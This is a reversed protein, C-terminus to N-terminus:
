TNHSGDGEGDFVDTKQEFALQQQVELIRAYAEETGEKLWLHEAAELSRLLGAQREHLALAHRWGADVEANPADAEAFRDCKHTIAREILDLLRGSGTKDLQTRLRASDLSNDRAHVALIADRLRALPESVLMLDAIAEAHEDILWPHNVLTRLLLAERHPPAATQGAVLGSGLLSSTRQPRPAAGLGPGAGRPGVGSRGQTRPQLRQQLSQRWADDARRSATASGAKGGSWESRGSRRDPYSPTSAGWAEALRRRVDQEYHGRVGPDAITQVLGRLRQELAARREPTSWDGAAWEREFLVGSLPRTRALVAEMAEPGQQRVLDDPDVGDPLFAFSVSSGPKLQPLVVDVARYAAKRGASDGDFCLIPEPAMRWLIAVQDETLATGLPAVAEPFGAEHLATVDLYGEVAIVRSRAHAAARARHANFLVHGKHFLPTEPSNLYKAPTDPDLARGGFAIVRGKLDTIPIMVRNRFRDYSVPIDDGHILMGSQNMEDPTFGLKALHEKLASRSPPAFGLRFTAITERRLGRREIYRRAEAGQTGALATEFYAASADLVAHLRQRLEEVGAERESVKPMPLGAEAALREVAEPFTLGETEM